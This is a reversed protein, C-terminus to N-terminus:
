QEVPAGTGTSGIFLKRGDTYTINSGNARNAGDKARYGQVVIETGIPLSDQTFGRRLLANPAAGEIMWRTVRGDDGKVDIHFWAHPNILEVKMVNGRLSVPKTADFEAAFAHHAWVPVTVAISLMLVAAGTLLLKTKM